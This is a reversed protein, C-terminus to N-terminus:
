KTNLATPVETVFEGVIQQLESAMRALEHAAALSNTAGESTSGAAQAVSTINQAIEETGKSSEIINRSIENTTATQEEVAGAITASIQNIQDIVGTIQGIAEVAARTDNQIVEIKQSINM